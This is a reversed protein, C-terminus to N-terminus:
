QGRAQLLHADLVLGQLAFDQTGDVAELKFSPAPRGRRVKWVPSHGLDAVPELRHMETLQARHQALALYVSRRQEAKAWQVDGLQANLAGVLLGLQTCGHCLQALLGALQVAFVWKEPGCGVNAGPQLTKAVALHNSGDRQLLHVARPQKLELVGVQVLKPQM